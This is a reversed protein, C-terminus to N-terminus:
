ASTNRLEELRRVLADIKRRGECFGMGRSKSFILETSPKVGLSRAHTTGVPLIVTATVEFNGTEDEDELGRM